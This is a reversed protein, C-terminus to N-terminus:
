KPYRDIIQVPEQWKELDDVRILNEMMGTEKLIQSHDMLNITGIKRGAKVNQGLTVSCQFRVTLTGM